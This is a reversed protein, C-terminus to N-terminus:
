CEDSQRNDLSKDGQHQALKYWQKEVKYNLVACIFTNKLVIIHWTYSLKVHSINFRYLVIYLIYEKPLYTM